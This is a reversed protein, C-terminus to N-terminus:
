TATKASLDIHSYSGQLSFGNIQWSDRWQLQIGHTPLDYSLGVELFLDLFDFVTTHLRHKKSQIFVTVLCQADVHGLNPPVESLLFCHNISQLTIITHWIIWFRQCGWSTCNSLKLLTLRHIGCFGQGRGRRWWFGVCNFFSREFYYWGKNHFSGTFITGKLTFVM